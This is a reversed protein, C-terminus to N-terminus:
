LSSIISPIMSLNHDEAKHCRTTKYTSVLTESFSAAEASSNNSNFGWFEYFLIIPILQGLGGEGAYMCSLINFM